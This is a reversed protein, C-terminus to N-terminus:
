SGWNALLAALDQPGVVGDGDIDAGGGQASGWAGLLTALDQPGVAGDGDLDGPRAETEPDLLNRWEPGSHFRPEYNTSSRAVTFGRGVARGAFPSGNAGKEVLGKATQSFCRVVGGDVLLLNDADDIALSKMDAIPLPHVEVTGDGRLASVLPIGPQAFWLTGQSDPLVSTEGVLDGSLPVDGPIPFVRPKAEPDGSAEFAARLDSSLALVSHPSGPISQGRRSDVLRAVDFPAEVGWAIFPDDEEASPMGADLGAIARLLRGTRVVLTRDGVFVADDIAPIGLNELPVRTLAHGDTGRVEVFLGGELGPVVFFPVGSPSVVLRADSPDGVLTTPGRSARTEGDGEGSGGGVPGWGLMETAVVVGGGDPGTYTGWSCSSAPRISTRGDILRLKAGDPNRMIRSMAQPRGFMCSLPVTEYVVLNEAWLVDKTVPTFWSQGDPGDNADAPDHYTLSRADGLRSSGVLTLCHGGTRWIVTEGCENTGLIDYIGYILTQIAREDISQRTMEQQSVVNSPTWVESESVFRLSVEQLLTVAVGPASNVAKTGTIPDTDFTAALTAIFDTAAGENADSQWDLDGPACGPYGHQAIYAFLNATATPICYMGGPVGNSNVPFASRVQDFDALHSIALEYDAVSTWRRVTFDAALPAAISAAM